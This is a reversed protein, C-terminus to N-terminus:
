VAVGMTVKPLEAICGRRRPTATARWAFRATAKDAKDTMERWATPLGKKRM